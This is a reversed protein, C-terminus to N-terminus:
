RGAIIVADADITHALLRANRAEHGVIAAIQRVELLYLLNDLTSTDAVDDIYLNSERDWRAVEVILAALLHRPSQLGVDGTTAVEVVQSRVLDVEQLVDESDDGSCMAIRRVTGMEILRFIGHRRAEEKLTTNRATSTPAENPMLTSLFVTDFNDTVLTREREGHESVFWDNEDIALSTRNYLHRIRRVDLQRHYLVNDMMQLANSSAVTGAHRSRRGVPHKITHEPLVSPAKHFHCVGSLDIARQSFRISM